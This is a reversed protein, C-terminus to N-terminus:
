CYKKSIKKFYNFIIVKFRRLILKSLFINILCDDNRFLFNIEIFYILINFVYFFYNLCFLNLLHQSYDPQVKRFFKM